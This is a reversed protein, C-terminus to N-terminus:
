GKFLNRLIVVTLGLFGLPIYIYAFVTFREAISVLLVQLRHVFHFLLCLGVIISFVMGMWVLTSETEPLVKGLFTQYQMAAISGVLIILFGKYSFGKRLWM